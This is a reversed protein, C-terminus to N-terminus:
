TSKELCNDRLIWSEVDELTLRTEAGAVIEKTAADVIQFEHPDYNNWDRVRKKKLLLGRKRLQYRAGNEKQWDERGEKKLYAEVDDLTLSYNEGLLIKDNGCDTYIMYGKNHTASKWNFGVGWFIDPMNRNYTLKKDFADLIKKQKVPSEREKFGKKKLKEVIEEAKKINKCHEMTYGLSDKISYGYYKDYTLVFGYKKLQAATKKERKLDRQPKQEEETLGYRGSWRKKDQAIYFREVDDISADFKKGLVAKGSADVIKYQGRDDATYYRIKNSKHLTYGLRELHRRAKQNRAAPNTPDRQLYKKRREEKLKAEAAQKEQENQQLQKWQEAFLEDKKQNEKTEAISTYLYNYFSEIEKWNAFKEKAKEQIAADQSWIVERSSKYIACTMEYPAAGGDLTVFLHKYQSKEQLQDRFYRYLERITQWHPVKDRSCVYVPFDIKLIDNSTLNREITIATYNDKWVSEPKEM